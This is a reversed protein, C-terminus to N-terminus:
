GAKANRRAPPEADEDDADLDAMADVFSDYSKLGTENFAAITEANPVRVEFPFRGERVMRMLFLRLAGSVTMGMEDCVRAVADREQATMRVRVVADRAM